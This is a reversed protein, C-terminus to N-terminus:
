PAQPAVIVRAFKAPDIWRRMARQVDLPKTALVRSYYRAVTNADVGDETSYLMERAVSNYSDISVLYSSLLMAKALALDSANPPFRRLRELTAAATRQAANVNKPDSQYTVQFTSSQQTVQLESDISYVYGKQKRVDTFLMSGTGEGSLMTNALQLAIVDSDGRKLPIRQTLTVDSQKSTTSTVTTTGGSSKQKLPPYKFLPRKGHVSWGGFYKEFAAKVQDPEVDGVVSVTTLDPRYAFAYWNRVDALTVAASTSSTAHRRHPDGVPYLAYLKALQAKQQPQGEFAKLSQVANKQVLAFQDAAFAPHLEGEALLAVTQDFNQATASASFSSGLDVSAAIADLQAQYAKYDHLTTGLGMVGDAISSVGDKGVPENLDANMQVHGEIVVTPSYSERRFAVTMGNKLHYIHAGSDAAPARLPASFYAATWAPLTVSEKAKVTVDEKGNGASQQPLSAGPKAILALTIAPADGTLLKLVRNVDDLSVRQFRAYDVDPPENQLVISSSWDEAQGPISAAEYANSELLRAKAATFLEQPVGNKAYAKLADRIDQLSAQPDSGPRLGTMLIGSGVEPYSGLFAFGVLAKGGLVLDAMAGRKSNLISFLVQTAAYDASKYGPVRVLMVALPVPFDITEKITTQSFPQVALPPHAPVAKKEIPGFFTKVSALAAQPDVDGVIVLTANNPHYWTHYFAAIDTATMKDFSAVTGVPDTGWPSDGFFVHNARQVVPLIPNSEKAKVEQEIAGRENNWDSERMLAHTMRDAEIRLVVDLYSAPVTYHYRTIMNQTEANYQAGIRTAINAFQESSIDDTGRFMMHETAHAIGPMTDDNGGVNYTISATVVPALQNQVVIVRLGNDLVADLPAGASAVEARAGSLQALFLVGAM